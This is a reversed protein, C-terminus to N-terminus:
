ATVPIQFHPGDILPRKGAIRCRTVYDAVLGPLDTHGNIARWCAGWEVVVGADDAASRFAQAIRQYLDFEWRAQGGVLAVVDIAHGTLHRSDLTKSAGARYLEAQRAKSRLGESIAFDVESRGIALHAVRVLDPHVGQLRWKSKLGFKFPM